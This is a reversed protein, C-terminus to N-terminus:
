DKKTWSEGLIMDLIDTAEQVYEEPVSVDFLGNSSNHFNILPLGATGFMGSKSFIVAPINYSKLTEKAYDSSISDHISGILIWESKNNKSIEYNCIVCVDANQSLESKCSPCYEM